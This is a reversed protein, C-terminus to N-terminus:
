LYFRNTREWIYRNGLKTIKFRGYRDISIFKYSKLGQMLRKTSADENFYHWGKHKHAFQLAKLQIKGLAM